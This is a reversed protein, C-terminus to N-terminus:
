LQRKGLRRSAKPLDPQPDQALALAQLQLRALSQDMADVEPETLVQLLRANLQRVQPLLDAVLTEGAPTLALVARRHDGPRPDRRVLQKDLLQGLAKSTRARDLQVREALESPGLGQQQWLLSLLSWERRTIGYRGECLRVVSAGGVALLRSLRFLLMDDIAQPQRLRKDNATM